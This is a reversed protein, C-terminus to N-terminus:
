NTSWISPSIPRFSPAWSSHIRVSPIPRWERGGVDRGTGPATFIGWPVDPMFLGLAYAGPFHRIVGAENRPISIALTESAATKAPNKDSPVARHVRAVLRQLM